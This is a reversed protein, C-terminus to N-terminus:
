IVLLALLVAAAATVLVPAAPAAATASSSYPNLKLCDGSTCVMVYLLTVNTTLQTQDHPAAAVQAYARTIMQASRLLLPLALLLALFLSLKLAHCVVAELLNAREKVAM